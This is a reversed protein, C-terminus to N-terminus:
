IQTMEVPQIKKYFCIYGMQYDGGGYLSQIDEKKIETVVDDDYKMWKGTKPDKGYGIYHGSNAGRGKHTVVGVLEYEGTENKPVEVAMPIEEEMTAEPAKEAQVPPQEIEMADPAPEVVEEAATETVTPETEAAAPASQEEPKKEAELGLGESQKKERMEDEWDIKAQRYKMIKTKLSDECLSSVDLKHPFAVRRLQKCNVGGEETQKWQFRSININLYEPLKTIQDTRKWPVIAGASTSHREIDSTLGNQLGFILHSVSKNVFCTLRNDTTISSQTEDGASCIETRAFEIEFLSKIVDSGVGDQKITELLKILFEGADQQLFFNRQPDREAFQPFKARFYQVFQWPAFSESTEGMQKFLGGLTKSVTPDLHTENFNQLEDNLPKICKLCQVTANLYCTNGLNELGPPTADGLKAQETKSLDEAFVVDVKKDELVVASGILKLRSKPKMGKLAEDSDIVVKRRLIKQKEPPVGTLSMITAQFVELGLARDVDVDFKKSGWSIKVPIIDTEAM